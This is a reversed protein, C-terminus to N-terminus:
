GVFTSGNLLSLCIVLTPVLNTQRSQELISAIRISSGIAEKLSVVGFCFPVFDDTSTILMTIGVVNMSM